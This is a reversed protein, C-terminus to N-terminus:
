YKVVKRTMAQTDLKNLVDLLNDADEYYRELISAILPTQLTRNHKILRAIEILQEIQAILPSLSDRTYPAQQRRHHFNKNGDVM